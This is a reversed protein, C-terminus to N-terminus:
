AGISATTEGRQIALIEQEAELWDQLDSGPQFGRREARYYAGEAIWARLLEGPMDAPDVNAQPPVTHSQDGHQPMQSKPM